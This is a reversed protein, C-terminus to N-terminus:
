FLFLVDRSFSRQIFLKTSSSLLFMLLHLCNCLRLKERYEIPSTTIPPDSRWSVPLSVMANLQKQQQQQQLINWIEKEALAAARQSIMTTADSSSFNLHDDSILNHIPLQIIIITRNTYIILFIDKKGVIAVVVVAMKKPKHDASGIRWSVPLSVM